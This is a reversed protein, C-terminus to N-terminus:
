VAELPVSVKAAPSVLLVKVTGTSASLVSSISPVTVNVSDLAEIKPTSPVVGTASIRPSVSSAAFFRAVAVILSAM